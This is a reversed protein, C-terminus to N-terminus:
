ALRALPLNVLLTRRGDDVLRMGGGQARIVACAIVMSVSSAGTITGEGSIEIFAGAGIEGVVVRVIGRASSNTVADDLVARLANRLPRRVGAVVSRSQLRLRLREGLNFSAVLEEMLLSIEVAEDGRATLLKRSDELPTFAIVGALDIASAPTRGTCISALFPAALTCLLQSADLLLAESTALLAVCRRGHRIKAFTWSAATAETLEAELNAGFMVGHQLPTGSTGEVRWAGDCAVLVVSAVGTRASVFDALVQAERRGIVAQRLREFLDLRDELAFSAADLGNPKWRRRASLTGM